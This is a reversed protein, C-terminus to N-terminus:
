LVASNGYGTETVTEDVRHDLEAQPTRGTTRGPDIKYTINDAFPQRHVARFCDVVADVAETQYAQVKFHLKM